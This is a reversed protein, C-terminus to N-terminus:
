HKMGRYTNIKSGQAWPLKQDPCTLSCCIENESLTVSQRNGHVTSPGKRDSVMYSQLINHQHYIQVVMKRKFTNRKEPISRNIALQLPRHDVGDLGPVRRTSRKASSLSNMVTSSSICFPILSCLSLPWAPPIKELYLM